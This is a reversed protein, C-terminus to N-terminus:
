YFTATVKVTILQIKLVEFNFRGNFIAFSKLSEFLNREDGAVMKDVIVKREEKIGQIIPIAQGLLPLHLSFNALTLSYFSTQTLSSSYPLSFIVIIVNPPLPSCLFPAPIFYLLTLYLRSLSLVMVVFSRSCLHIEPPNPMTHRTCVSCRESRLLFLVLIRKFPRIFILPMFRCDLSLLLLSLAVSKPIM